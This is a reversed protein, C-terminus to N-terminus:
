FIPYYLIADPTNKFDAMDFDDPILTPMEGHKRFNHRASQYTDSDCM